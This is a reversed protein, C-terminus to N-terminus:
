DDLKGFEANAFSGDGTPIKTQLAEEPSLLRALPYVGTVEEGDLTIGALVNVAEGDEDETAILAVTGEHVGTYFLELLDYHFSKPTNSIVRLEVETTELDM